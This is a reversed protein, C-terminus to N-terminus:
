PEFVVPRFPISSVDKETVFENYNRALSEHKCPYDIAEKIKKWSLGVEKLKIVIDWDVKRERPM